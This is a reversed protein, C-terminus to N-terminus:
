SSEQAQPITFSAVTGAGPKSEFTLSGGLQHALTRALFVGLGLGKGVPKTTFFPEGLRKVAQADIGPGHDRVSLTVTAGQAVASLEVPGTSAELANKVLNRLAQALAVRPGTVDLALHAPLVVRARATLGSVAEELWADLPFTTLAEGALEGSRTSMSQLIARCREVQERVLRADDKLADPVPLKELARSMESSAVAITGLPTALEHAAGAALTTLAALKEHQASLRRAEALQAEQARLSDLVRQVFYVIFGAAVVFALWMGTLHLRMLEQHNPLRWAAPAVKDVLFLSAFALLTAGLQLWQRLRSLVLAGLVINVLYLATFPNFPGGSLAFVGTHLATDLLMLALLRNESVGRRQWWWALGDSAFGVGVLMLVWTVQLHIGLGRSAWLLLALQCVWVARRVWRFWPLSIDLAGSHM